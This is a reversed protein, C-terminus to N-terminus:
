QYSFVSMPIRHQQSRVLRDREPVLDSYQTHTSRPLPCVALIYDLLIDLPDQSRETCGADDDSYVWPGEDESMDLGEERTCRSKFKRRFIFVAQDCVAEDPGRGKPGVRKEWSSSNSFSSHETGSFESREESISVTYEGRMQSRMGLEWSTTKVVGSIFFLDDISLDLGIEEIEKAWVDCRNQYM